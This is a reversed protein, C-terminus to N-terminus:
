PDGGARRYLFAETATLSRLLTKLDGDAAIFETQLQDVTCQDARTPARGYGFQLMQQAACRLALENDALRLSFEVGGDFPGGFELDPIQGSADIPKNNDQLRYLGVANYHEFAFGIGDFTAHCGSCADDNAHQEYQERTTMSPDPPPPTANVGPPPPPIPACLFKERVFKGRAIPRTSSPSALISMLSAHTLLGARQEPDLAVRHLEGPKAGAPFETLLVNYVFALDTSLFSYDASLLERFSGEGDWFVHDVFRETEARMLPALSAAYGAKSFEGLQDLELLQRFYDKVTARARPDALMRDVQAARQTPDALEGAEAAALLLDDPPGQWLLYSLRTALEWDDLRVVSSDEPVALGFEVRYLFAPSLLVRTLLHQVGDAFSDQAGRAYSTMLSASEGAALPRRYARRGFDPLWALVCAEQAAAGATGIDDACGLLGALRVDETAWLALKEATLMYEGAQQATVGLAEANNDFGFAMPDVSLGVAADGTYGLLDRVTNRFETRNLRRVVSDGPEIGDCPGTTGGTPESDGGSTVAATATPDTAGHEDGGADGCAAVLVLALALRGGGGQGHRINGVEDENDAASVPTLRRLGPPGTGSAWSRAQARAPSM